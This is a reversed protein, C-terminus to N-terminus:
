PPATTAGVAAITTVLWSAALMSPGHPVAARRPLEGVCVGVAAVVATGVAALAAAVALAGWSVGGLVAGLSAALKVDGLGLAASLAVHVASYGIVAVCAGLLGRGVAGAGLPLLLLPAVGAAPLTLADPLRSHRLDVLGAAVGLWALGLLAPLWRSALLGSGWLGGTLAWLAGIALECVPARVRVGRRLRGLLRRASAGAAMGAAEGLFAGVLARATEM